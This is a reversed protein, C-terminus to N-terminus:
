VEIKFLNEDLLERNEPFRELLAKCWRYAAEMDFNYEPSFKDTDSKFGFSKTALEHLEKKNKFLSQIIDEDPAFLTSPNLYRPGVKLSIGNPLVIHDGVDVSGKRLLEYYNM